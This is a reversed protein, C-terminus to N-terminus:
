SIKQMKHEYVYPLMRKYFPHNNKGGLEQKKRKRKKPYLDFRGIFNKVSVMLSVRLYKVNLIKMYMQKGNDM